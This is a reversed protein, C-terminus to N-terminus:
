STKYSIFCVNFVSFLKYLNSIKRCLGIQPRKGLLHWDKRRVKWRIMWARNNAFCRWRKPQQKSQSSRLLIGILLRSLKKDNGDIKPYKPFPVFFVASCTMKNVCPRAYIFIKVRAINPSQDINRSPRLILDKRKLSRLLVFICWRFYVVPFRLM